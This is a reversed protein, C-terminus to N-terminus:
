KEAKDGPDALEAYLAGCNKCIHVDGWLVGGHRLETFRDYQDGPWDFPEHKKAKSPCVNAIAQIKLEPM